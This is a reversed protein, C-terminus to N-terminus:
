PKKFKSILNTFGGKIAPLLIKKKSEIYILAAILGANCVVSTTAMVTTAVQGGSPKGNAEEEVETKLADLEAKLSANAANAQELAAVASQM